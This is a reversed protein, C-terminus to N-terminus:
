NTCVINTLSSNWCHWNNDDYVAFDKIRGEKTSKNWKISTTNDQGKNYIDYFLNYQTDTTIGYFIYGGNEQGGPVVNTYKIDSTNNSTNRHWDIQIFPQPDSPEKNLIWQGQTAAEDSTGTYWLFDTYSGQLSLYMKWNLQGNDIKGNLKATYQKLGWNVTYIWQWSGDSLQLPTHNFSENFAAVPIGLTVTLLINWVGVNTAALGWNSAISDTAISKLGKQHFGSFDMVMSSQPPLSPPEEKEKKKCSTITSAGALLIIIIMTGPVKLLNKM